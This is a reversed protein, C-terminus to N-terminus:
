DRQAAVNRYVLGLLAELQDIQEESLGAFTQEENRSAIDSLTDLYPAAAGTVYISYARRDDNRAKRELLGEACLRDILRGAAAESIELIEAITRQTLGPNAAVVAILTWQSGTAGLESVSQDFKKRLHRAIVTLRRTLLRKRDTAENRVLTTPQM